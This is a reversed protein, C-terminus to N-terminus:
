DFMSNALAGILALVIADTISGNANLVVVDAYLVWCLKFIQLSSSRFLNFRPPPPSLLLLHLLLHHLLFIPSDSPVGINSVKGPIVVLDELNLVGCRPTHLPSFTPYHLILLHSFCFSLCCRSLLLYALISSPPAVAGMLPDRKATAM